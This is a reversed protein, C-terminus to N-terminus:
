DIAVGGGSSPKRQMIEDDTIQMVLQRASRLPGLEQMTAERQNRGSGLMWRQASFSAFVTCPVVFVFEVRRPPPQFRAMLKAVHPKLVSHKSAITAQFVFLTDQVLVASDWAPNNVLAPQIYHADGTFRVQGEDWIRTLGRPLSIIVQERLGPQMCAGAGAALEQGIEEDDESEAEMDDDSSGHTCSNSSYQDGTWLVSCQFAGGAMLVTHAAGEFLAARISSLHPVGETGSLWRFANGVGRLCCSFQFTLSILKSVM